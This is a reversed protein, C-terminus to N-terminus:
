NLIVKGPSTDINNEVFEEKSSLSLRKGGNLGDDEGKIWATYSHDNKQQIYTNGSINPGIGDANPWGVDVLAYYSGDLVNNTFNFNKCMYKGDGTGKYICLNSSILSNSGMRNYFGWGCGGFRLINDSMTVDEVKAVPSTFIEVNMTCYEILSNTLVMNKELLEKGVTRNQSCNQFSYGTDYCQYIWCNDVTNNSYTNVFEVGNGLRGYGGPSLSGGIYGIECGRIVINDSGGRFCIGHLGANKVCFNEIVVNKVNLDGNMGHGYALEISHFAKAPNGGGYYLYLMKNDKNHFFEFDCQLAAYGGLLKFACKEGNNFIINGIDEVDGVAVAWINEISTKHWLKEDALDYKGTYFVPKAGSGYAGYSINSKLEFRGRYLGGREFLIYLREVKQKFFKGNKLKGNEFDSCLEALNEATKWATAETRGDNADNGNASIYYVRCRKKEGSSLANYECLLTDSASLVEQRKAEAKEDFCSTQKNYLVATNETVPTYDLKGTVEDWTNEDYFATDTDPLFEGESLALMAEDQEMIVAQGEAVPTLWGDFGNAFDPNVFLNEDSGKETLKIDWIYSHGFTGQAFGLFFDTEDEKTTFEYCFSGRGAGFLIGRRMKKKADSWTEWLHSDERGNNLKRIASAEVMDPTSYYEFTFVYTTNPKIEVGNYKAGFLQKVEKDTQITYTTRDVFYSSFKLM